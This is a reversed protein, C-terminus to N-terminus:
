FSHDHEASTNHRSHDGERELDQLLMVLAMGMLALATGTQERGALELTRAAALHQSWSLRM